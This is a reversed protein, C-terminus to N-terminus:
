IELANFITQYIQLVISINGTAIIQAHSPFNTGPVAASQHIIQVLQHNTTQLVATGGQSMVPFQQGGSIALGAPLTQSLAFSIKSMM